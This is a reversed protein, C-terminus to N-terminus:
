GKIHCKACNGKSEFAAGGPRHCSACSTKETESTRHIAAKYNLPAKADEKFLKDHCGTCDGSARKLHAAHDFTVNGNKTTFTLKEPAKKEQAVLGLAGGLGAALLCVILTRM